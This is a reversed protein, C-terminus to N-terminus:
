YTKDLVAILDDTLEIDSVVYEDESYSKDLVAVLEDTLEIDSFVYEDESESHTKDIVSTSHSTSISTSTPDRGATAPAEDNIYLPLSTSTPDRGTTPEDDSDDAYLPLFIKSSSNKIPPPTCYKVSGWTTRTSESSLELLGLVTRATRVFDSCLGLLGCVTWLCDM